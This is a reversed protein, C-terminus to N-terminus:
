FMMVFNIISASVPESSATAIKIAYRFRDSFSIRPTVTTEPAGMLINDLFHDIIAEKSKIDGEVERLLKTKNFSNTRTNGLVEAKSRNEDTSSNKLLNDITIKFNFINDLFGDIVKEKLKLDQIKKDSSQLERQFSLDKSGETVKRLARFLIDVDFKFM